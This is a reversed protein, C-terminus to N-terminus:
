AAEGRRRRSIMNVIEKPHHGKSLMGDAASMEDVGLDDGFADLIYDYCDEPDDFDYRKARSSARPGPESSASHHHSTNTSTQTLQTPPTLQSWWELNDSVVVLPQRPKGGPQSLCGSAERLRKDVRLGIAVQQALPSLDDFAPDEATKANVMPVHAMSRPLCLQYEDSFGSNSGQACSMRWLFGLWRMEAVAEIVTPKTHGTIAMLRRIGPHVELGRKNSFTKMALGVAKVPPRVVVYRWINDWEYSYRVARLADAPPQGKLKLKREM